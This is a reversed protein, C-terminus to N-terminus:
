APEGGWPGWGGSRMYLALAVQSNVLPDYLQEASTVGFGALWSRHSEWHIQFLGYCCYNRVGPQLNSEREAIKLATDLLDAPFVSAIIATVEDRTYTKRPQTTTPAATTTAPKVTTTPAKATTTTPKATTTPAATTTPTQTTTTSPAPPPGPDQAGAPLCITSGPYIPTDTTAGNADLLENTSVGARDAIGIWYDGAGVEYEGACPPETAASTANLVDARQQTGTTGASETSTAAAATPAPAQTAAPQTAPAETAAATAPATAVPSAAPAAPAAVTTPAAAPDILTISGDGAEPSVAAADAGSGEASGGGRLAGVFPVALVGVLLIAGVRAVFPDRSRRPGPAEGRRGPTRWFSSQPTIEEM